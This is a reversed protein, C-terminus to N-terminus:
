SKLFHKSIKIDGGGATTENTTSELRRTNSGMDSLNDSFAFSIFFIFLIQEKNSFIQSLLVKFAILFCSLLERDLTADMFSQVSNDIEM